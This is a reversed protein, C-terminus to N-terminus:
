LVQVFKRIKDSERVIELIEKVVIAELFLSAQRNSYSSSVVIFAKYCKKKWFHTWLKLRSCIKHKKDISFTAGKLTFTLAQDGSLDYPKCANSQIGDAKRRVEM